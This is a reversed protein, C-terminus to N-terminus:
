QTKELFAVQYPAHGPTPIIELLYEGSTSLIQEPFPFANISQLGNGWCLKRYEKYTYNSASKLLDIAKSSAHIPISLVDTLFYTGGIHDEHSHTILCFNIRENNLLTEVFRKFEIIGGPAGTDILIGDLYYYSTFFPKPILEDEMAWNWELLDDTHYLTNTVM